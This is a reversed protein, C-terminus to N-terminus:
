KKIDEMKENKENLTNVKMGIFFLACKPHKEYIYELFQNMYKENGNDLKKEFADMNGLCPAMKEGMIELSDGYVAAETSDKANTIKELYPLLPDLCGCIKTIDKRDKKTVLNYKDEEESSSCGNIYIVASIILLFMTYRAISNKM